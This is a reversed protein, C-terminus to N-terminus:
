TARSEIRLVVHGGVAQAFRQVTRMSPPRKGSELRAVVSQTTGMRQAVEGQSLGARTRAAILERAIGYEDAQADYAARTEADALLERKLTDLTKM